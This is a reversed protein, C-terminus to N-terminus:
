RVQQADRQSHLMSHLRGPAHRRSCPPCRHKELSYHRLLLAQLRWLVRRLSQGPHSRHPYRNTYGIDKLHEYDESDHSTLQGYPYFDSFLKDGLIQKMESVTARPHLGNSILLLIDKKEVGASYLEELCATISVKRHSTPQCGGKVIDPIVIVVKSGKHAMETLTPMGIPNRISKLTEAYLTDWDQPLCEPDPVTVGPIFVDTSDPLNASLVGEGYEFDLKM